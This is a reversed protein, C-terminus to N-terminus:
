WRGTFLREEKLQERTMSEVHSDVFLVNARRNHRLYEYTRDPKIWQYWQVFTDGNGDTVSEYGDWAFLVESSHKIRAYRRGEWFDNAGLENRKVFLTIETKSGFVFQRKADSWGSNDGGYCNQSYSTYIAGQDFTKNTISNKEGQTAEPCNFIQKPLNGTLAYVVGWYAKNWQKPDIPQELDAPDEWGTSNSWCALRGGNQNVYMQVAQGIQRLNSACQVARAQKRAGNLSPLLLSILVAIIGIVVLLEVLTFGRRRYSHAIKM